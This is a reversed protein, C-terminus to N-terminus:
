AGNPVRVTIKTGKGPSSILEFKGGLSLVREKMGLIGFSKKNQVSATDFGIGDDEIILILNEEVIEISISINSAQSYRIINTFAEQCVRFVATAIQESVKIDKEPTTFKVPIGTTDSFQRGLWDLAELLGQNDLIQPRLESLIRRISQNSSDLLGIINKLKRKIETADEPIKKDIWAVDMKIATLQQGLEDHIERAIYTREEERVNQLHGTLRKIEEYSQKLTEETKKRETIDQATGFLRIVKGNSDKQGYGHEQILRKEGQPTIIHYELAFPEGTQQAHKNTQLVSERDKTDVLHLFSSYRNIFTQKNAGFVNYLEESWTVRNAEIDFDWSGMKALRQAAALHAESKRIQEVAIKNETVNHVLSLITLVNGREDPLVSNYWECYIVKGAKTYNRNVSVNRDVIGKSLQENIKDVAPIDEKYIIPFDPDYVNKGLAELATWGFIDEAHRSWRKIFLDKDLEIVALPTNEFHYSLRQYALRLEDVTQKYETVDQTTGLVKVAVGKADTIIRGCSYVIRKEGDPRILRYHFDYSEGTRISNQVTRMVIDRDDPHIFDLSWLSIEKEQPQLGFIRYLEDSWTVSEAQLDWTWSGIHALEQAEALQNENVRLREEVKKRETIDRVIALIRNDSLMKVHEEIQFVTGDRKKMLRERFLAEGQLLLDFRLPDTKLHGSDILTAINVGILENEAYGVMKCFSSNVEILQGDEGTIIIADSAQEILTRYRLESRKLEEEIKKREYIEDKLEQIIKALKETRETVKQELEYNRKKLNAKLEKIEPDELIQWKGKRKSIVREHSHAVDLISAATSKSLPYTCLVIMQQDRLSSNLESEYKMFNGWDEKELWTENGNVRMGDYGDALAHQLKVNWGKVIEKPNFTGGKLYWDVHPLIEIRKEALFRDFAPIAARMAHMANEETLPHSTIWFCFENNELGAKFYPVLLALLDKKTEYFQCFHSGWPLDGLVDIGSKRLESM